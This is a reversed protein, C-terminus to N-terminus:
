VSNPHVFQPYLPLACHKPLSVHFFTLVQLICAYISPSYHFSRWSSPLSHLPDVQRLVPLLPSSKHLCCQVMLKWLFPFIKVLQPFIPKELIVRILSDTPRNTLWLQIGARTVSRLRNIDQVGHLDTTRMMVWSSYNQPLTGRVIILCSFITFLSALLAAFSVRISQDDLWYDLWREVCGLECLFCTSILGKVGLSRYILRVAGSVELRQM